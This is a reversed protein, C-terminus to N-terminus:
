IRSFLITFGVLLIGIIIGGIIILDDKMELKGGNNSAYVIKRIAKRKIEAAFTQDLM